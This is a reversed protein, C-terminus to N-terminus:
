AKYNKYIGMIPTVVFGSGIMILLCLILISQKNHTLAYKSVINAGM